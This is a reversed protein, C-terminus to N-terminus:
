KAVTGCLTKAILKALLSADYHMRVEDFNVMAKKCYEGAGPSDYTMDNELLLIASAIASAKEVGGAACFYTFGVPADNGDQFDLFIKWNKEDIYVKVTKM